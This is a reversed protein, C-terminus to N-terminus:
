MGHNNYDITKLEKIVSGIVAFFLIRAAKRLVWIEVYEPIYPILNLEPYKPNTDHKKLFNIFMEEIKLQNYITTVSADSLNSEKIVVSLSSKLADLLSNFITM